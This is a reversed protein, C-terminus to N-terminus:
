LIAYRQEINRKQFLHIKERETIYGFNYMFYEESTIGYIINEQKIENILNSEAIDFGNTFKSINQSIEKDIYKFSM